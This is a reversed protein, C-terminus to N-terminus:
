AKWKTAARKIPTMRRTTPGVITKSANLRTTPGPPVFPANPRRVQLKKSKPNVKKSSQSATPQSTHAPM